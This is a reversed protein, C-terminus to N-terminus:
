LLSHQQPKEKKHVTTLKQQNQHKQQTSVNKLTKFCKENMEGIRFDLFFSNFVLFILIFHHTKHSKKVNQM